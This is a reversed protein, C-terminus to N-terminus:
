DNETIKWGYTVGTYVLSFGANKVNVTMDETLGMIKLGNRDVTLINTDFTGTLDLFQIEDGLLPSAPLRVTATASSTDVFIRDNSVVTVITSGDGVITTYPNGGGLGTWSSGNYGEWQTLTTNYRIGGAYLPAGTPREATTGTPPVWIGTGAHDRTMYGLVANETPIATNSNGALTEDISFENITAGLQAGISGLQLESLGSLDFADANLTAIGTAQQIRFLDGVRFDGDQDTSVFYVRGGNQEDVEDTQDSPQIPIGPYNTDAVGGTGVSLFDHGTLRVNSFKTTILTVNNNNVAGDLQTVSDTLRITATGAATNEETVLNVRYYRSNGTFKVNAGVTIVGATSLSTVGTKVSIIPGLQGQQAVNTSDSPGFTVNLTVQFTSSNEKTVTIVEGKQFNGVRNLIHINNLQTNYRFFTATAGSTNGVITATGSGNVAIAGSVDSQSAVGIFGGPGVSSLTGNYRLMEGNGLISVPTEAVLQGDAVAGQEGYCSSGNLGRIFGGESCFYSKNCFYTFCSVMEARGNGHCWIGIGDSNIQTFHTGLISKNSSPNSHLLGDIKIGVANANLSTMDQLYPSQTLIAGEPDLSTVVAGGFGTNASLHVSTGTMGRLTMLRLNTGDNLLWMYSANNAELGGVQVTLTGTGGCGITAADVSVTDGIEFGYGGHYIDVASVAVGAITVNIVLGAGSGTVPTTHVYKYTGPTGGSITSAFSVTAATSSNGSAPRVEVARLAEGRVSVNPPVVLPLHELYSGAKVWVMDGFGVNSIILQMNTAGGLYTAGDITVTDGVTFNKGGNVITVSSVTPTSSGDLTIRFVANTGSGSTTFTSVDFVGAAGGTGGSVSALGLIDNKNAAALAAKITKYPLTKAGTATSDNGSNAVYLVNRTGEDYRWEPQLGNSTLISGAPGLDLRSPAGSANLVIMDGAETMVNGEDGVALTEWVSADLGPTIGQQRDKKQIYSSGLYRVVEGILYTVGSSYSGQYKFGTTVLNWYTSNVAGTAQVAPYENSHNSNSVYSNGGYNVVDGTKYATGYSFTGTPKYGTTVVDWYANDTPTNGAPTEQIAVYTYGGYTVVDGTQYDTAPNYSDEWQLGETYVSFNSENFSSASASSTHAVTCIWLSAGYKVVDNVKYYTSTAYAGKYDTADLYLEFNAANLIAVGGVEAASTHQTTCRYQRSGYKVVDNLKYHTSAAYTGKFFFSESHLSYKGASLDTYFGASTSQSTHNVLVVYSNGGYKVIDDIVYVTSTAWDGRWKFKLRGLKFDAM